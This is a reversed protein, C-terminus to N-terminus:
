EKISRHPRENKHRLYNKKKEMLLLLFRCMEVKSSLRHREARESM